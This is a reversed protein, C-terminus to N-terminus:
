RSFTWATSTSIAKGASDYATVRWYYIKDPSNNVFLAPSYNTGTIFPSTVLGSKFAADTAYQLVYKTGPPAGAPANWNFTVSTGSNQVSGKVPSTLIPAAKGYLKGSLDSNASSLNATISLQTTGAANATFFYGEAIPTLTYSKRELNPLYFWGGDEVSSTLGGGFDILTGDPPILGATLQGYIARDGYATVTPSVQSATM